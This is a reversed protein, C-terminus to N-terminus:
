NIMNKKYAKCKECDTRYCTFLDCSKVLHTWVYSNRKECYYKECGFFSINCSRGYDCEACEGLCGKKRKM